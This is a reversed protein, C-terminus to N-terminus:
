HTAASSDDRLFCFRHLAFSAPPPPPPLLATFSRQGTVHSSHVVIGVPDRVVAKGVVSDGMSDGVLDGVSDGERDGEWYGVLDGVWDGVSDGVWDGVM